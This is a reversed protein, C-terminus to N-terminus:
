KEKQQNTVATLFRREMAEWRRRFGGSRFFLLHAAVGISHDNKSAIDFYHVACGGKTSM